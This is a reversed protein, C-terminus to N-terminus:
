PRLDSEFEIHDPNVVPLRLETMIRQRWQAGEAQSDLASKRFRAAIVTRLAPSPKVGVDMMWTVEDAGRWNRDTQYLTLTGGDIGNNKYNAVKLTGKARSVINNLAELVDVPSRYHEGLLHKKAGDHGEVMAMVLWYHGEDKKAPLDDRGQSLLKGLNFMANTNKAKVAQRYFREAEKSSRTTGEGSELMTGVYNATMSDGAEAARRYWAFAQEPSKDVGLGELYLYGLGNMANVNGGANAAQQYLRAAAPLDKPALANGVRHADAKAVLAKHFGQQVLTDLIVKAGDMDNAKVLARFETLQKEQEPTGAAGQALAAAALGLNFLVATIFRGLRRPRLLTAIM